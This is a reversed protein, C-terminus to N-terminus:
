RGFRREIEICDAWAIKRAREDSHVMYAVDTGQLYHVEFEPAIENRVYDGVKLWSPHNSSHRKPVYDHWALVRKSSTPHTLFYHLVKETASKIGAYTLDADYFVFGVDALQGMDFGGFHRDFVTVNRFGRAKCGIQEPEPQENAHEPSIGPNKGSYDIGYVTREPFNFAFQMSTLGEHCGIELINGTTQRAISVLAEVDLQRTFCFGTKSPILCEVNAAEAVFRSERVLADPARDDPAIEYLKGKGLLLRTRWYRSFSQEKEAWLKTDVEMQEKVGPNVQSGHEFHEYGQEGRVLRTKWGHMNAITSKWSDGAYYRLREPFGGIELWMELRTLQCENAIEEVSGDRAVPYGKNAQEFGVIGVREDGAMLELMRDTMGKHFLVDSDALLLYPAVERDRCYEIIRNRAVCLGLNRPSAILRDIRQRRLWNTVESTSGNDFVVLHGNPVERWSAFCKQILPLNNYTVIGVAIATQGSM